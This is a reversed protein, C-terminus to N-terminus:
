GAGREVLAIVGCGYLAWWSGLLALGGTRRLGPVGLTARSSVDDEPKVRPGKGEERTLHGSIRPDLGLIVVGM